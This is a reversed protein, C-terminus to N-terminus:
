RGLNKFALTLLFSNGAVADGTNQYDRKWTLGLRLCDDEYSVGVRHRVPDFGDSVSLPDENRDTLDIVTSGFVSWFRAIQVRGALRVEERDQLDELTPDINRNLRLYGVLAYTSRSGVTLDLENRRVALDDKDLRYRQTFSVFDRFRIENRGVIDSFRDTLGTGDPFIVPRQGLRYSQGVNTKISLGPLDLAWDLGYTFRTADEFRDYGAFRNLAFLNSDELDVSRADENPVDLNETKPAAVIQFRPTLRQTGGLFEGILPWKVDVALAGIARAHVGELGSYSPITTALTDTANYVDGRGYATFTVEQGFSTLKRLDWRASAFARQTDQGGTRTIALTNLQVEFKGGLLGDDFRRRYDLEPLAIPQLGQRDNARLTQISWGTLAFYSDADIRELSATSRLRDDRSMDYRRLFTRDSALRISARASWNEDFQYRGVGELYGRFATEETTAPANSLLDDSRKSVTAYANIRYAGKSTLVSYDAQIMPLVKSFVRPTLILGRNPALRFYYPQAYEFGNSGGFRVDPSLLGSASGDGVVHSFSPLPITPLGFLNIQAGKYYIRDRDPRYIVRVATIKWSPEKPCGKETTVACPTFAADDLTVTEDLARNGKRAALRGGRELVILMNDVVGDKLADTLEISDGYATDGGPNTVAINGTAVVKGTNRNWVVKDARLRDGGRYMRVDGIATVVEDNLDYELSGATFQVQEDTTPLPTESPPPPTVPRPQLDQAQAGCALFLALPAACTLLLDSRKM